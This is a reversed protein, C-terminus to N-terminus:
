KDKLLRALRGAITNNLTRKEVTLETVGSRLAQKIATVRLTIPNAKKAKQIDLIRFPSGIAFGYKKNNIILSNFIFSEPLQSLTLTVSAGSGDHSLVVIPEVTETSLNDVLLIINDSNGYKYNLLNFKYKNEEEKENIHPHLVKIYDGIKIVSSMDELYSADIITSSFNQVPASYSVFQKKASNYLGEATLQDPDSYNTEKIIDYYNSYFEKEWEVHSKNLKQLIENISLDNFPIYTTETTSEEEITAPTTETGTSPTTTTTSDSSISNDVLEEGALKKQLIKLFEIYYYYYGKFPMYKGEGILRTGEGGVFYQLDNIQKLLTSYRIYQSKNNQIKKVVDNSKWNSSFESEMLTVYNIYENMKTSYSNQISAIKNDLWNSGYLTKYFYVYEDNWLSVLQNQLNTIEFMSIETISVKVDTYSDEDYLLHMLHNSSYAETKLVFSSTNTDYKDVEVAKFKGDEDEYYLSKSHTAPIKDYDILLYGLNGYSTTGYEFSTKGAVLEGIPLYYKDDSKTCKPTYYYTKVSSGENYNAYATEESAISAILEEEQQVLQRIKYSYENFISQYASTALNINRLKEDLYETLRTARGSDLLGQEKVYSFDYIFSGAHPIRKLANFYRTIESKDNNDLGCAVYLGEVIDQLEQITKAERWNWSIDATKEGRIYLDTGDTQLLPTYDFSDEIKVKEEETTEESDAAGEEPETTEATAEPTTSEEEEAEEKKIIESVKNYTTDLSIIVNQVFAPMVPVITVYDGSATEGGYVHMINYITNSGTESFSFSSLNIDPKLTLSRSSGKERNIFNLEKNVYDAVMLANFLGCIETLINLPTLETFDTTVTMETSEFYLNDPFEYIDANLKPDVKWDSIRALELLKNVLQGITKPGTIDWITEDSTSLNLSIKQNSLRHFLVDECAYSIVMNNNKLVPHKDVIVFDIVENQTKYRLHREPVLLDILPNNQEGYKLEVDFSLSSKGYEEKTINENFSGFITSTGNEYKSFPIKEVGEETYVLIDISFNKNIQSM